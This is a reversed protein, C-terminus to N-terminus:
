YDGVILADSEKEIMYGQMYDAGTRWLNAAMQADEVMPMIIKAGQARVPASITQFISELEPSQLLRHVFEPSMKIYDAPIRKQLLDWKSHEDVRSFCVRVGLEHAMVVCESAGKLNAMADELAFDLVLRGSVEPHHEVLRRLWERREEQVLLSDGQSLFLRVPQLHYETTLLHITRQIMWRDLVGLVGARRAVPVFRAALILSKDPAVLRPLVQFSKSSEGSTAMLPQFFIRVRDKRLADMLLGLLERDDDSGEGKFVEPSIRKIANGGTQMVDATGDILSSLLSDVSPYRQDFECYGLSFSLSVSGQGVSFEEPALSQFLASASEEASRSPPIPLFVLLTRENLACSIAGSGLQSLCLRRVDELLPILGSHGHQELVRRWNDLMLCLCVSGAETPDGIFKNFAEAVSKLFEDPSM